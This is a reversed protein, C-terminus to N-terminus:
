AGATSLPEADADAQQRLQLVAREAGRATEPHSMQISVSTPAVATAPALLGGAFSAVSMLQCLTRM